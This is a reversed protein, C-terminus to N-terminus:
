PKAAPQPLPEENWVAQIFLSLKESVDKADIEAIKNAPNALITKLLEFKLDRNQGLM